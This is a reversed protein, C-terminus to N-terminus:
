LLFLFDLERKTSVNKPEQQEKSTSNEVSSPILTLPGFDVNSNRPREWLCDLPRTTLKHGTQEDVNLSLVFPRKSWTVGFLGYGFSFMTFCTKSVDSDYYLTHGVWINCKNMSFNLSINMGYRNKYLVVCFERTPTCRTMKGRQKTLVTLYPSKSNTLRHKHWTRAWVEHRFQAQSEYPGTPVNSEKLWFINNM